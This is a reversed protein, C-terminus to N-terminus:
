DRLFIVEKIGEENDAVRPSVAVEFLSYSILPSKHFIFIM